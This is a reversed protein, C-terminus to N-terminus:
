RSLQKKGAKRYLVEVYDMVVTFGPQRGLSLQRAYLTGM